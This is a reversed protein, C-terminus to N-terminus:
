NARLADYPDVRAARMAPLLGFALGTFAAFGLALGVTGLSTVAEWEGLMKAVQHGFGMGAAVGLCGGILCIIVAELLFQVAVEGDRAGVAKRLGIERQRQHISLLMINMIGIGGTLLSVLALCLGVFNQKAWISQTKEIAERADTVVLDLESRAGLFARIQEKVEASKTEDKITVLLRPSVGVPFIKRGLEQSMWITNDTQAGSAGGKFKIVGVVEAMVHANGNSIKIKQGTAPMDGFLSVAVQGGIVVVPRFTRAEALTWMRGREFETKTTSFWDESAAVVQAQSTAFSSGLSAMGVSAEFAATDVLPLFDRLGVLDDATVDGGSAEVTIVNAGMSDLQKAIFRQAGESSSLTAIVAATGSVMGLLTLASRLRNTWLTVSALRLIDVAGVM